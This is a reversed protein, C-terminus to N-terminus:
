GCCGGKEKGLPKTTALREGRAQKSTAAVSVTSKIETALTTFADEVNQSTKASTELFKIGQSVAYENGEEYTIARNELDCKNGVLLKRVGETAHKQIENSWNHLNSFSEKETVDYVM